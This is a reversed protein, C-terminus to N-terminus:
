TSLVAYLARVVAYLQSLVAYLPSLGGYLLPLARRTIAFAGRIVSSGSRIISFADHRFSQSKVQWIYLVYVYLNPKSGRESAEPESLQPLLLLLLNILLLKLAHYLKQTKLERM